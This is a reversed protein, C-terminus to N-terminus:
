NNTNINKLKNIINSILDKKNKFSELLKIKFLICHSFQSMNEKNFKSDFDNFNEMSKNNSDFELYINM